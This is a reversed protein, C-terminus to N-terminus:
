SRWGNSTTTTTTTTRRLHHCCRHRRHRRGAGACHCWGREPFRAHGAAPVDDPPLLGASIGQGLTCWPPVVLVLAFYYECVACELFARARLLPVCGGVCGGARQLVVGRLRPWAITVIIGLELGVVFWWAVVVVVVVCGPLCVGLVCAGVKDMEGRGGSYMNFLATVRGAIPGKCLLGIGEVLAKCPVSADGAQGGAVVAVFEYFAAAFEPAYSLQFYKQNNRRIRLPLLV